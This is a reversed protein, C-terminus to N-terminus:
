ELFFQMPIKDVQIVDNSRLQLTREGLPERNVTLSDNGQLASIYYGDKRRAIVVVSGGEHGLRTMAKKLPLIRGIHPGDLVQLNAEPIKVADGLAENLAEVDSDRSKASPPASEPSALFSETTNYIIYHKGVNIVDNNELGYEKVPQNNILLPFKENLQKIVCSGPKVVVVAHAPAVALSDVVLDNTEDRGIHVVGADFIVSQIAKDKFFVTFKAM